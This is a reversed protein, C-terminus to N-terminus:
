LVLSIRVEVCKQLLDYGLIESAKDFLAKAAPLEECVASAMGVTQAGQGPFMFASKYSVGSAMRLATHRLARMPSTSSFARASIFLTVMTLVMVISLTRMNDSQLNHEFEGVSGFRYSRGTRLYFQIFNREERALCPKCPVLQGQPRARFSQRSMVCWVSISLRSSKLLRKIWLEHM